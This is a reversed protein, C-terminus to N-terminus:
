QRPAPSADSSVTRALVQARIKETQGPLFYMVGQKARQLEKTKWPVHMIGTGAPHGDEGLLLHGLEHAIVHGLIVRHVEEDAALERVRDAFVNALVGFGGYVPLLAFGFTDSGVPFTQAMANSLLRLTIITPTGPLDCTTNRALEAENLPCNRWIMSIGVRQYIRATEQEAQALAYDSIGAYNYIHIDISLGTKQPEGRLVIALGIRILLWRKTLRLM